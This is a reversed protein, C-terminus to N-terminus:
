FPPKTGGAESGVASATAGGLAGGLARLRAKFTAMDLPKTITVLGGGTQIVLKSQGMKTTGDASRYSEPPTVQCDVENDYIGDLKDIDEPGQGKWGLARLREYSYVASEASFYLFTTMQGIEVGNPAPQGGVPPPSRLSMGVAIQLTSKETEGVQVSGRIAKGRYQGPTIM